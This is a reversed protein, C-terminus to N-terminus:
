CVEFRGNELDVQVVIGHHFILYPREFAFHDGKHLQSLQNIVTRNHVQLSEFAKKAWPISRYFVGNEDISEGSENTVDGDSNKLLWEINCKLCLIGLLKGNESIYRRMKDHSNNGCGQSPCGRQLLNRFSPERSELEISRNIDLRNELEDIVQDFYPRYEVAM